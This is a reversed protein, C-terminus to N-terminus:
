HTLTRVDRGTMDQGGASETVGGACVCGVPAGLASVVDAAGEATVLQQLARETHALGGELGRRVDEATLVRLLWHSARCRGVSAQLSELAQRLEVANGPSDPACLAIETCDTIDLLLCCDACAAPPLLLEHVGQVWVCV